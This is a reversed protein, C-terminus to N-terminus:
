ILSMAFIIFFNIAYKERMIRKLVFNVKFKKVISFVHPYKERKVYDDTCVVHLCIELFSFRFFFFIATQKISKGAMSNEKKKNRKGGFNECIIIIKIKQVNFKLVSRKGRESWTLEAAADM